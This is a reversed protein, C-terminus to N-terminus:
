ATKVNHYMLPPSTVYNCYYLTIPCKATQSKWNIVAENMASDPSLSTFSNNEKTVKLLFGFVTFQKLMLFRSCHKMSNQPSVM